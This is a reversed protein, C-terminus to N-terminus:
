VPLWSPWEPFGQSVVGRWVWLLVVVHAPWVFCSLFRTMGCPLQSQFLLRLVFRLGVVCLGWFGFALLWGGYAM